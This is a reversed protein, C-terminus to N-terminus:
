IGYCFGVVGEHWSMVGKTRPCLNIIVNCFCTEASSVLPRVVAAAGLRVSEPQGPEGHGHDLRLLRHRYDLLRLRRELM